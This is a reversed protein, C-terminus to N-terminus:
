SEVVWWCGAFDCTILNWSLGNDYSVYYCWNFCQYVGGGVGGGGGCDEIRPVFNPMGGGVGPRGNSGYDGAAGSQANRGPLQGAQGNPAPCSPSDGGKGAAGPKGGAGGQAPLGPPGGMGASGGGNNTDILGYTGCYTVTIEAGNGGNGGRGGNGAAGGKGGAAANGGNGGKGGRGYQCGCGAGDGGKGGDGGAGGPQGYGGRGGDGGDGGRARLEYSHMDGPPLHCILNHAPDGPEGPQGTGGAEGDAGPEGNGGNEGDIMGPGACNGNPGPAGPNGNRAPAFYDQGAGGDQGRGGDHPPCVSQLWPDDDGEQRAKQVALWERRGCGSTDITIHGRAARTFRAPEAQFLYIHCNGRVLLREGEVVLQRAVIVLDGTVAVREPTVVTDGLYLGQAQAGLRLQSRFQPLGELSRRLQQHWDGRLLLYPEFGVGSRRLLDAGARFALAQRAYATELIHRKKLGPQNGTLIPRRSFFRAVEDATPPKPDAHQPRLVVIELPKDAKQPSEAQIRRPLRLAPTPAALLLTLLNVILVRGTPSQFCAHRGPM